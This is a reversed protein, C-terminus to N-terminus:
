KVWIYFYANSTSSTNVITTRTTYSTGNCQDDNQPSNYPRDDYSGWRNSTIHFDPHDSSQNDGGVIRGDATPYSYSEFGSTHTLLNAYATSPSTLTTSYDISGNQESDCNFRMGSISGSSYPMWLGLMSGSPTLTSINSNYSTPLAAKGWVCQSSFILTWGGGDTTMDCYVQQPSSGGTGDPDIWYVDDGVSRGGDLIAKCSALPNVVEIPITTTSYCGSSLNTVTLSVNYTGISSWTVTPNEETSTSPSGSQFTWSYTVGSTVTPIFVNNIATYAGIPTFSSIPLPNVTVAYNNQSSPGCGNETDEASVTINGSSAGFTVTINTTGQGSTISSGSPVTWNYYNAGHVPAISYAVDTAGECVESPGTIAAPTAPPTNVTVLTTVATGTCGDKTVQLSYLGAGSTTLDPISPSQESSSFANPGTWFYDAGDLFSATLNLTNGACLPSNNSVTPNTFDCEFCSQKWTTGNYMNLCNTSINFVMLGLAPSPINDREAQTMRPILAGGTNSTIDIVASADPVTTGIAVRSGNDYFISSTLTHTDSFKALYNQTGEGGLGSVAGNDAFTLRGDTDVTISANNYTGPIVDTELLQDPGVAGTEINTSKVEGTGIDESTITGDLIHFGRVASEAILSSDIGDAKVRLIDSDIEITIDDVNIHYQESLFSLGDGDFSNVYQKNTADQDNVPDDLNMIRNYNMDMYFGGASPNVALVQSLGYPSATGGGEIADVYAKTVADAPNVPTGLDTIRMTNASTGSTLVEALTPIADADERSLIIVISDGRDSITSGEGPRFMMRGTRETTDESTYLSQIANTTYESRISYPASTLKERPSLVESGVQIELYYQNNFKVTDPFDSLEVSFLGKSIPVDPITSEWLSTGGELSTYLRFRIDITSNLGVGDSDLLKGQYNLTRPVASILSLTIILLLFCFRFTKM